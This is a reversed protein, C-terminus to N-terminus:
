IGRLCNRLSVGIINYVARTFVSSGERVKYHMCDLYVFAYVSKLQWSHWEQMAPIVKDTIASLTTASIDMQYM